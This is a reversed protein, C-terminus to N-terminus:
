EERDEWEEQIGGFDWTPIGLILLDYDNIISFDVDAIDHMDVCCGFEALAQCIKDAVEETNGTDTGFILGTKLANIQMMTELVAWRITIIIMVINTRGPM